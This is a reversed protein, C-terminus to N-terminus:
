LQNLEAAESRLANAKCDEDDHVIKGNLYGVINKFNEALQPFKQLGLPYDFGQQPCSDGFNQAVYNYNGYPPLPEPQRL